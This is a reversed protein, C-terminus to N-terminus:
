PFASVGTGNQLRSLARRRAWRALLNRRVTPAGSLAMRGSPDAVVLGPVGVIPLGSLSWSEYARPTDECSHRARYRLRPSSRISRHPGPVYHLNTSSGLSHPVRDMTNAAAM